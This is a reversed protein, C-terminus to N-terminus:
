FATILTIEQFWCLTNFLFREMLVCHVSGKGLSAAATIATHAGHTDSVALLQVSLKNAERGGGEEGAEERRARQLACVSCCWCQQGCRRRQGAARQECYVRRLETTKEPVQEGGRGRRM